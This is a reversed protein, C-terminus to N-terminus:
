PVTLTLTSVIVGVTVDFAGGGMDGLNGGTATIQYIPQGAADDIFPGTNFDGASISSGNLYKPTGTEGVLEVEQYINSNAAGVSIKLNTIGSTASDEDPDVNLYLFAGMVVTNADISTGFSVAGTTTVAGLATLDALQIRQQIVSLTTGPAAPTSPIYKAGDWTLVDGTAGPATQGFATIDGASDVTLAIAGLPASGVRINQGGDLILDADVTVADYFVSTGNVTLDVGVEFDEAVYVGFVAGLDGLILVPKPASFNVDFVNTGSTEETVSFSAGNKIQTTIGTTNMQTYNAAAAVTTSTALPNGVRTTRAGTAAIDISSTGVGGIDIATGGKITTSGATSDILVAGGGTATITDTSTIAVTQGDVATATLAAKGVTLTESGTVTEALIYNDNTVLNYVRFAPTTNDAVGILATASSGTVVTSIGASDVLVLDAGTWALHISGVPSASTVTSRLCVFDTKVTGSM